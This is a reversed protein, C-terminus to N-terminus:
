CIKNWKIDGNRYTRLSLLLEANAGKLGTEILLLVVRSSLQFSVKRGGKLFTFKRWKLLEGIFSLCPKTSKQPTQSFRRFRLTPQLKIWPSKTWTMKSLDIQSPDLLLLNESKLFFAFFNIQKFVGLLNMPSPHPIVLERFYSFFDWSHGSVYTSNKKVYFFDFTFFYEM